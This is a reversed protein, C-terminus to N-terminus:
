AAPSAYPHFYSTEKQEIKQKKEKKKKRFHVFDRKKKMKMGYSKRGHTM